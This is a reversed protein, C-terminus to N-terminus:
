FSNDCLRLYIIPISANHSCFVFSRSCMHVRLFFVNDAFSFQASVRILQPIQFCQIVQELEQPKQNELEVM